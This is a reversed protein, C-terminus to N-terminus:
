YLPKNYPQNWFRKLTLYNHEYKDYDFYRKWKGNWMMCMNQASYGHNSCPFCEIMEESLEYSKDFDKAEFVKVMQNGLDYYKKAWKM